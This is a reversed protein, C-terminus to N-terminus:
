LSVNKVSLSRLAVLSDLGPPNKGLRPESTQSSGFGPVRTDPYEPIAYTAGSTPTFLALILETSRRCM